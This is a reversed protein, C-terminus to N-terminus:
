PLKAVLELSGHREGVVGRHLHSEARLALAVGAGNAGVLRDIAPGRQDLLRAVQAVDFVAVLGLLAPELLDVPVDAVVGLGEALRGAQAVGLSQGTAHGGHPPIAALARGIQQVDLRIGEPFTM